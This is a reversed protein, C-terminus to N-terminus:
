QKLKVESTHFLDLSITYRYDVVITGGGANAILYSMPYKHTTFLLTVHIWVHCDM